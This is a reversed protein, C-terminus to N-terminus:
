RDSPVRLSRAHGRAHSSFPGSEKRARILGATDRRLHVRPDHLGVGIAFPRGLTVDAEGVGNVRAPRLPLLLTVAARGPM